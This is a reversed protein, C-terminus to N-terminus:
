AEHGGGEGPEPALTGAAAVAASSGDDPKGMAQRSRYLTRLQEDSMRDLRMQREISYRLSEVVVLFVIIIAFWALWATLLVVKGAPSLALAVTLVVPVAISGVIAGRILKPYLRTFREYRRELAARYEDKDALARVVQTLRYRRQPIEVDEGNFIGSQRIQRAVMRNVNALLPRFVIGLAMFLTFFLALVALDTAYQAGYFGCIAERMAGIGYTFPLLPYVAQFFGSTMEIPYLGTAGPIQAFVLVICIGKGIHQLTVSLAFIISLYALSAVIAAAFLAVPSVAQVGIALVGACCIVAQLVVMAALLLFRGLYRQTITLREIGQADVEQKLIVMLMFAGIWFTLNMFLPAMAAGYANLPYLQETRLQTPAGMFDAIDGADLGDEGFVQELTDSASLAMVDTRVLGLGEELSALIGDTQGLAENATRLTSELQALVPDAQGILAQNSGVAQAMSASAHSLQALGNSVAPLTQGFLVDAYGQAETSAKQAADNFANSAQDVASATADIDASLSELNALTAEATANAAELSAIAQEIAQKQTPDTVAGSLAKLEAIIAKNNDVVARAQAVSANVNGQTEHVAAVADGVAANAQASMRSFAMLGQNVAPMATASFDTLGKQLQATLQAITTLAEAAEDASARAGDLGERAKGAQALAGETAARMDGLAARGEAVAQSADLLKTGARGQLALLDGYSEALTDDIAQAAVKSVTTVFTSNITEDLTSAGTDTIKPSVPGLKENVYYDLTPQTFDGSALTLLNATFDSPIVFAAYSQGSQVQAMATDLDVFEWDLQHNKQLENVIQDGVRLPGTLDTSAGEDNNVVCVRLNGTNDYPNWFGIVNYWTYASPLILLALIVVLAPPVKLLRRVDRKLVRWVNGM